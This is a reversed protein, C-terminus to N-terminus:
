GADRVDKYIDRTEFCAKLAIAGAIFHYWQGDAYMMLYAACFASVGPRLILMVLLGLWKPLTIEM